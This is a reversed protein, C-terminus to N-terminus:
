VNSPLGMQSQGNAIPMNMTKLQITWRVSLLRIRGLLSSRSDKRLMNVPGSDHIEWTASAQRRINAFPRDGPCSRLGPGTTCCNEFDRPRETTSNALFKPLSLDFAKAAEAVVFVLRSHLAGMM